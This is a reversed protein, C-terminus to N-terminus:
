PLRDPDTHSPTNARTLTPNSTDLNTRNVDDTATNDQTLDEEAADVLAEIDEGRVQPDVASRMEQVFANRLNRIRGSAAKRNEPEDPTLNALTHYVYLISELASLKNNTDYTFGEDIRSPIALNPFLWKARNLSGRLDAVTNARELEYDTNKLQQPDLTALQQARAMGDVVRRGWLRVDNKYTEETQFILLREQKKTEAIQRQTEQQSRRINMVGFVLQILMAMLSVLMSFTM